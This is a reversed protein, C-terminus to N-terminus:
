VPGLLAWWVASVPTFLASGGPIFLSDDQGPIFLSDDHGPIFLPSTKVQYSCSITTVQYLCLVRKPRTHVLFRRSRTYVLFITVGDEGITPLPRGVIGKFVHSHSLFGRGVRGM